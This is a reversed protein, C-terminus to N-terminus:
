RKVNNKMKSEAHYLVFSGILAFTFSPGIIKALGQGRQDKRVCLVEGHFCKDGEVTGLAPGLEQHQM